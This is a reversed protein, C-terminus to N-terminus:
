RLFAEGPFESNGDHGDAPNFPPLILRAREQLFLQCAQLSIVLAPKHLLRSAIKRLLAM